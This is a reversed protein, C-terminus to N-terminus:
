QKREQLKSGGPVDFHLGGGREMALSAQRRGPLANHVQMQM